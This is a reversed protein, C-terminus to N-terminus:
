WDERVARIADQSMAGRGSWLATLASAAILAMSLAGLQLWPLALDISWNFSQRNIVYVLILSLATGLLLGYIVSLASMIVGEIALMALVQRRLMGIHRLMGFQARRALASSGAAVGVGLLGIGVAIVELAYTIAFARDFLMLSRQRLQGSGLLELADGINLSARIAAELAAASAQPRRWISGENASDDGTAAIYAARAMVIAGAPRVYDRWIGAVFLDQLRGDLPLQLREGVRYGYLDQLSESIWAAQTGAPASLGSDRVLPLTDGARLPDLERAILAVPARDAHLWVQRVRRFQARAVAPLAAIRDQQAGSLAGTDSGFSVRLSLDAPLLKVLWLDFSNRFSHVMIAMAVMLSFSVIIAALSVTSVGASGQLQAVAIDLTARGSRGAGSTVWRMLAPILLVAGALLAAIAVYGAVPLGAVPPLWALVAGAGILALGPLTTALGSLAPECDGSKMALAPARRAAERAPIWAGLCAVATGILVFVAMPLPPLAFVVDMAALARNGLDSGLYRLVLAAVVAGLLAGLLSGAVGIAAGEGLLACQLQLRTVGLARLLGLGARRRLVALSQTSFVLFAGTLLAVLALMNLNVRYARTASVARSREIAPTLAVVGAPLAIALQERLAALNTGPRVRLDIRNLRGIRQLSWQATAIDMIGLPEPYVGDSLIDIVRLSKPAGGVVIPLADGRQLQLQQAAARSLIITDPAFLRTVDSGIEAMLAPQLAAARFPDLALLKLPARQGPLTLELELVPSATAVAPQHALSVFLAEDFGEPPGRVVIDAAGILRRTAQDFEDLAASNVLYVAVGLAVGLAIATITALLQMPHERWQSRAFTRWAIWAGRVSDNRKM